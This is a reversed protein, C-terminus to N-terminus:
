SCDVAFYSGVGTSLYPGEIDHTPRDTDTYHHMIYDGPWVDLDDVHPSVGHWGVNVHHMTPSAPKM